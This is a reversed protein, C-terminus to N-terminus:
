DIRLRKQKSDGREGGILVIYAFCSFYFVFGKTEERGGKCEEWERGRGGWREPWFEGGM